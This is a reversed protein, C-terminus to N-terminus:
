SRGVETLIKIENILKQPHRIIGKILRVIPLLWRISKHRYFFPYFEKMDEENKVIRNIIYGLKVSKGKYKKSNRLKQMENLVKTEANGYTGNSFMYKLMELDSETIKEQYLFVHNVLLKIRREFELVGLKELEEDVYEWDMVEQKKQLYVFEDCLTRVGCGSGTYHKFAHVIMYIYEDEDNFHFGHEFENNVIARKWPNEYYDIPLVGRPILERHMEFNLVPQKYYVDHNGLISKREFGLNTMIDCLVSQAKKTNREKEESTMGKVGYIGDEFSELLGYLIDNDCMYRMGPNPYYQQINIGKLTLWSIGAKEMALLIKEREIDFLIMRHLVKRANESWRRFIDEPISDQLMNVAPWAVAEVNNYEAIKLLQEWMYLEPINNPKCKRLACGILYLLYKWTKKEQESIENKEVKYKRNAIQM